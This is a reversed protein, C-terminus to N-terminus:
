YNLLPGYEFDKKWTIVYYGPFITPGSDTVDCQYGAEASSISLEVHEIVVYKSGLEFAMPVSDGLYAYDENLLTNVAEENSQM